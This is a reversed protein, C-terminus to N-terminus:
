GSTKHKSDLYNNKSQNTLPVSLHLNFDFGFTGKMICAKNNETSCAKNNEKKRESIMRSIYNSCPPMFQLFFPVYCSVQAWPPPNHHMQFTFFFAELSQTKFFFSLTCHHLISVQKDVFVGVFQCLSFLALYKCCFKFFFRSAFYANAPSKKQWRLEPSTPLWGRRTVKKTGLPEWIM